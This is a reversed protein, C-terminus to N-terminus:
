AVWGMCAFVKESADFLVRTPQLLVARRPLKSKAIRAQGQSHLSDSMSTSSGIVGMGISAGDLGVGGRVCSFSLPAMSVISLTRHRPSVPLKPKVTGGIFMDPHQGGFIHQLQQSRPRQSDRTGMSDTRGFSGSTAPRNHVLSTGGSSSTSSVGGMGGLVGLTCATSTCSDEAAIHSLSHGTDTQLVVAIQKDVHQQTKMHLVQGQDSHGEDANIMSNLGSLQRALISGSVSGESVGELGWAQADADQPTPHAQPNLAVLNM